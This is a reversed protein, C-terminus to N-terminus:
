FLINFHCEKKAKDLAGLSEPSLLLHNTTERKLILQEVVWVPSVSLDGSCGNAWWGGGPSWLVFISLSLLFAKPIIQQFTTTNGGYGQDLYSNWSKESCWFRYPESLDMVLAWKSALPQTSRCLSAGSSPANCRLLIYGEQSRCCIADTNGKFWMRPLGVQLSATLAGWKSRSWGKIMNVCRGWSHAKMRCPLVQMKQQLVGKLQCFGTHVSFWLAQPSHKPSSLHPLITIIDSHGLFNSSVQMGCKYLSCPFVTKYRCWVSDEEKLIVNVIVCRYCFFLDLLKYVSGSTIELSCLAVPPHISLVWANWEM